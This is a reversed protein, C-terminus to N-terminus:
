LHGIRAESELTMPRSGRLAGLIDGTENYIYGKVALDQDPTM